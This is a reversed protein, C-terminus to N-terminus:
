LLMKGGDVFTGREPWKPCLAEVAAMLDDLAKLPDEEFRSSTQVGGGAAFPPESLIVPETRNVFSNM